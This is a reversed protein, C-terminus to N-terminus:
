AAAKAAKKQKTEKIGCENGLTKHVTPKNASKEMIAFYTTTEKKDYDIPNPWFFSAEKM